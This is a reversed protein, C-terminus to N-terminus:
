RWRGDHWYYGGHRHEWRGAEWRAHPRPPRAWRGPVWAYGPGRRAWFGGIWVYGPAPAVGYFEARPPPPPGAVYAARVACGATLLLTLFPIALVARKM